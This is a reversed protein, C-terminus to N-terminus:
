NKKILSIVLVTYKPRTSNDLFHKSVLEAYRRFLDDMIEKGFHSKLMSEAVARINNAVRQGSSTIMQDDDFAFANNPRDQDLRDSVSSDWDIEFTELRDTIFSGEKQLVLNLEEACSAYYPLNFSNVKEEEIRGQLM